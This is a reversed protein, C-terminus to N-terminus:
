DLLSIMSEVAADFFKKSSIVRSLSSVGYAFAVLAKAISYIDKESSIEGSVQARKLLAAIEKERVEAHEEWFAVIRPDRGDAAVMSNLMFCGAPDSPNRGSCGLASFFARLGERANEAKRIIEGRPKFYERDYFALAEDFLTQKDKFACVLSSRSLDMADELDRFTAGDYGKAWFVRLAARLAEERDFERPRAM